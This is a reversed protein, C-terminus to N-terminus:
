ATDSFSEALLDGWVDWANAAIKKVYVVGGEVGSIPEYGIKANLTIISDSNEGLLIVPGSSSQRFLLETGIPFAVSANEPMQVVCGSAHTCRFYTNADSLTPNFTNTTIEEVASVGVAAWETDYDDASVKVLVDNAIGGAPVGSNMWQFDFDSNSTKTLVFGVGGGPPLSLEPAPILLAYYDGDSNGAGADFSADSTHSVSVIYANGNASVIDNRLYATLPLWAGMGRISVVPLQILSSVTSDTFIFQFSEGVQEVDDIGVPTPLNDELTVIRGDLIAINADFEAKTLPSGKVLVYTLPM